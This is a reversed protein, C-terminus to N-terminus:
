QANPKKTEVEKVGQKLIFVIEANVSRENEAAQRKIADRMGPPFRVVFQDSGRGVAMKREKTYLVTSNYYPAKNSDLVTSIFNHMALFSGCILKLIGSESLVPM